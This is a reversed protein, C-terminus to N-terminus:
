PKRHLRSALWLRVRDTGAVCRAQTSVGGERFAPWVRQRGTRAITRRLLDQFMFPDAIRARDPADAPKGSIKAHAAAARGRADPRDFSFYLHSFSARPPLAFRDANQTYWTVLEADSPNQLAAIDQALFDMKQALRRKIIEDDTALGLAVAERYLIEERVKVDVLERMEEATPLPRGQALWHVAIQRLDSQDPRTPKWGSEVPRLGCLHACRRAPFPSATRAVM